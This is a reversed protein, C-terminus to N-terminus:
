GNVRSYRRSRFANFSWLGLCLLVQGMTFWPLFQKLSDVIEDEQAGEDDEVEADL